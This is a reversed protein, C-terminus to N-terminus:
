FRAKAAEPAKHQYVSLDAGTQSSVSYLFEDWAPAQADRLTSRSALGALFLRIAAPLAAVTGAGTEVGALAKGAVSESQNWRQIGDTMLFAGIGGIIWQVAKRREMIDLAGSAATPAGIVSAVEVYIMGDEENLRVLPPAFAMEEKEDGKACKEQISRFISLRKAFLNAASVRAKQFIGGNFMEPFTPRFALFVEGKLLEDDNCVRSYGGSARKKMMGVPSVFYMPSTSNLLAALRVCNRAILAKDTKATDTTM